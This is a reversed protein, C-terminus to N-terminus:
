IWGLEKVAKLFIEAEGNPNAYKTAEIDYWVYEYDHVIIPVQKQFHNKIFGEEQLRKAIDAALSVLEFEGVPGKGIYNGDSDYSSDDDEYGINCINNEKYWDFLMSVLSDPDDPDIIFTEDNEWFAYNWREEDYQGAGSCDKETNYSIAFTTINNFGNYEYLENSHIFFSIAYIDPENWSGIISKIRQYMAESINIM